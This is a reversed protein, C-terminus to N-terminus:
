ESSWAFGCTTLSRFRARRELNTETSECATGLEIGWHGHGDGCQVRLISDEDFFVYTKGQVSKVFQLLEPPWEAEKVERNKPILNLRWKEISILITPQGDLRDRIGNAFAQDISFMIFVAMTTVTLILVAALALPRNQRRDVAITAVIAFLLLPAIAVLSGVNVLMALRSPAISVGYRAADYEIAYSCMRLGVVTLAYVVCIAAARLVVGQSDRIRSDSSYFAHNM